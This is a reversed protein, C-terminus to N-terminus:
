PIDEAVSVEREVERVHGVDWPSRVLPEQSVRITVDDTRGEKDNGSASHQYAEKPAEM